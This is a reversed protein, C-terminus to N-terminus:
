NSGNKLMREYGQMLNLANAILDANAKTYCLATIENQNAEKVVFFSGNSGVMENSVVFM